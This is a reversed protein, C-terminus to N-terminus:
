TLVIYFDLYGKMYEGRGVLSADGVFYSAHDRTHIFVLSKDDRHCINIWAVSDRLERSLTKLVAYKDIDIVDMTLDTWVLFSM